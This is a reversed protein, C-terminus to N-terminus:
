RRKLYEKWRVKVADRSNGGLFVRPEEFLHLWIRSYGGDPLYVEVQSDRELQDLIQRTQAYTRDSKGVLVLDLEGLIIELREAMQVRKWGPIGEEFQLEVEQLFWELEQVRGASCVRVAEVALGVLLREIPDDFIQGGPAQAWRMAAKALQESADYCRWALGLVEPELGAESLELERKYLAALLTARRAEEELRVLDDATMRERAREVYLSRAYERAYRRVLRAEELVHGVEGWRGTRGLSPDREISGLICHIAEQINAVGVILEAPVSWGMAGKLGGYSRNLPSDVPNRPAESGTAAVAIGLSALVVAVIM